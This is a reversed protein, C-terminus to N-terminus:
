DLIFMDPGVRVARGMRSPLAQPERTPRGRPKGVQTPQGALTEGVAMESTQVRAATELRRQFVAARNEELLDRKAEMGDSGMGVEPNFLPDAKKCPNRPCPKQKPPCKVCFYGHDSGDWAHPKGYLEANSQAIKSAVSAAIPNEARLGRILADQDALTKEQYVYGIQNGVRLNGDMNATILENTLFNGNSDHLGVKAMCKKVPTCHHVDCASKRHMDELTKIDDAIPDCSGKRIKSLEQRKTVCKGKAVRAYNIKNSNELVTSTQSRLM